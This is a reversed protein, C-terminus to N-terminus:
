EVKQYLKYFISGNSKGDIITFNKNLYDLEIEQYDNSINSYIIYKSIELKRNSFHTTDGFLKIEKESFAIPFKTYVENTQINKSKLTNVIEDQLKFYRLYALSSDWGISIFDPYVIFHGANLCLVNLAVILKWKKFDFISGVFILIGILYIPLLYRHGIPNTFPIFALIHLILVIFLIVYINSKSKNLNNKRFIFNIIFYANIIWLIMRGYDLIDRGIVAVNKVVSRVSAVKRQENWADAESFLMWGTHNYHYFHWGLLAIGGVIYPFIFAIFGFKEEKWRYFFDIFFLSAMSVVSRVSILSLLILVWYLWDRKKYIIAYLGFLFLAVMPIDYSVLTTQALLTSELCLFLMSLWVQKEEKFFFLALKYFSWVILVIFPLISLHSVLLTQGFLHWFLCLYLQFFPPHGADLNAPIILNGLGNSYFYQAIKSTLVTDWFFPNQATIFFWGLFWMLSLPFILRSKKSFQEM